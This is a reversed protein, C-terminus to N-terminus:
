WFMDTMSGLPKELFEKALHDVAAAMSRVDHLANHVQGDSMDLRPVLRWLTGSSYQEIDVGGAKLMRRVDCFPERIDVASYDHWALNQLFVGHDYGFCWIERDGVFEIFDEYVQEFIVAEAQLREETIGTLAIFRPHLRPWRVQRVLRDFAMKEESRVMDWIIASIQVIERYDAPCPKEGHDFGPHQYELDVYVREHHTSQERNM